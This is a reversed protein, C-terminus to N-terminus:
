EKSRALWGNLFKKYKPTKKVIARYFNAQEKRFEKLLMDHDILNIIDITDEDMQGNVAIKGKIIANISSKLIKHTRNAGANVCTDFIKIALDKNEINEYHNPIWFFQKYIEDSRALTLAKVDDIDVDGDGDIDLHDSKLFALSVGFKTAGGKDFQDNSYGGEHLLVVKMAEDFYDFTPPIYEVRQEQAEESQIPPYCSTVFFCCTGAIFLTAIIAIRIKHM